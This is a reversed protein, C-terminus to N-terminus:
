PGGAADLEVLRTTCRGFLAPPAAIVLDPGPPAGDLGTVLLGAEAAILWRRRPGLRGAGERLVRGRRGEAALCLDLAAAGFRRIDRVQTILEALM